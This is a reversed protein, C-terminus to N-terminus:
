AGAKVNFNNWRSTIEDALTKGKRRCKMAWPVYGHTAADATCEKLTRFHTSKAEANDPSVRTWQWGEASPTFKWSSRREM